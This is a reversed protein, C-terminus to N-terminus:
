ICKMYDGNYYTVKDEYTGIVALFSSWDLIWMSDLCNTAVLCEVSYSKFDCQRIDLSSFQHLANCQCIMVCQLQTFLTKWEQFSNHCNQANIIKSTMHRLQYQLLIHEPTIVYNGTRGHDTYRWGEINAVFILHEFTVNCNREAHCCM